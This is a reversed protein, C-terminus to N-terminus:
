QILKITISELINDELFLFMVGGHTLDYILKNNIQEDPNGIEEIVKEYSDGISIGYVGGTSYNIETLKDGTFIFIVEEEFFQRIEEESWLFFTPLCLQKSPQIIASFPFRYNEYFGVLIGKKINEACYLVFRVKKSEWEFSGRELPIGLKETIKDEDYEEGIGIGLVENGEGATIFVVKEKDNFGVFINKEEFFFHRGPVDGWTVYDEGLLNLIEIETLGLLDFVNIAIEEGVEEEVEESIEPETVKEACGVGLVVLLVLLFILLGRM